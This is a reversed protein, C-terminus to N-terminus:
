VQLDVGFPGDNGFDHPFGAEGVEGGVFTSFSFPFVGEIELEVAIKGGLEEHVCAEVVTHFLVVVVVTEELKAFQQAETQAIIKLVFYM